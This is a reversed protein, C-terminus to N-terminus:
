RKRKRLRKLQALFDLGQQIGTEEESRNVLTKWCVVLRRRLRRFCKPTSM